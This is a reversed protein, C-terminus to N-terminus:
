WSYDKKFLFALLPFEELKRPMNICNYLLTQGKCNHVINIHQRDHMLTPLNYFAFQLITIERFTFHSFKLKIM